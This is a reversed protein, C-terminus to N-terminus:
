DCNRLEAEAQLWNQEACGDPCGQEQWIQWAREAIQQTAPEQHKTPKAAIKPTRLPTTESTKASTRKKRVTKLQKEETATTM